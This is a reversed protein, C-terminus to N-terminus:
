SKTRVNGMFCVICKMNLKVLSPIYVSVNQLHTKIITSGKLFTDIYSIKYLQLSLNSMLNYATGFRINILFDTNQKFCERTNFRRFAMRYLFEIKRLCITNYTRHRQFNFIFYHIYVCTVCFSHDSSTM